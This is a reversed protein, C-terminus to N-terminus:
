SESYVSIPKGQYNPVKKLRQVIVELADYNANTIRIEWRQNLIFEDNKRGVLGPFLKVSDYFSLNFIAGTEAIEPDSKAFALIHILLDCCVKNPVERMEVYAYTGDSENEDYDDWVNVPFSKVDDMCFTRELEAQKEAFKKHLQEFSEIYNNRGHNLATQIKAKSTFM